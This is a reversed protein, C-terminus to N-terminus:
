KPPETSVTSLKASLFDCDFFTPIGVKVALEFEVNAGKSKEWGDIMIVADCDMMQKIAIRMYGQWSNCPPPSNEAPNAVKYGAERLQAAIANFAPYNYDKIGTMPGSIYILSGKNLNM